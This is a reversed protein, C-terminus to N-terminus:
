QAPVLNRARLNAATGKTLRFRRDGISVTVNAGERNMRLEAPAKAHDTFRLLTAKDGPALSYESEFSVGRGDAWGNMAKAGDFVNRWGTLRAGKFVFEYNEWHDIEAKQADLNEGAHQIFSPDQVWEGQLFEATVPPIRVMFFWAAGGAVLAATCLGGILSKRVM